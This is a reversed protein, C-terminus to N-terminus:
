SLNAVRLFWIHMQKRHCTFTNSIKYWQVNIQVSIEYLFAYSLSLSNDKFLVVVFIALCCILFIVFHVYNTYKQKNFKGLLNENLWCFISCHPYVRTSQQTKIKSQSNVTNVSLINTYIQIYFLIWYSKRQIKKM